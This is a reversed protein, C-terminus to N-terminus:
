LGLHLSEGVTIFGVREYLREGEDHAATLYVLESGALLAARALSATIAAGIGRRRWAPRVAISTLETVGDYPVLCAGSALGEGSESDVVLATVGGNLISSWARAVDADSVPDPEGFAEHRIELVDRCLRDDEVLVVRTGETQEVERLSEDTCSMLSFAGESRFGAEALAVTADPALRPALEVRPRLRRGEYAEVVDAIEGLSPLCGDDPVAYNLYPGSSHRGFTALFPGLREVERREAAYRRVYTQIRELASV